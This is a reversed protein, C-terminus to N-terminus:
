VIACLQFPTLSQKKTCPIYDNGVYWSIEFCRRRLDDTLHDDVDQGEVSTQYHVRHSIYRNELRLAAFIPRFSITEVASFDLLDVTDKFADSFRQEDGIYFSDKPTVFAADHGDDAVTRDLLPLFRTDRLGGLLAHVKDTPDENALMSAIERLLSKVEDKNTAKSDCVHVLEELLMATDMIKAGLKDKFFGSMDPYHRSLITKGRLRVARIDKSMHTWDIKLELERYIDSVQTIEPSDRFGAYSLRELERLIDNHTADEIDLLKAFLDQALDNSAYEKALVVKGIKLLEKDQLTAVSVIGSYLALIHPKSQTSAQFSSSLHELADLHFRLTPKLCVDFIQLFSWDGTTVLDSDSDMQLYPLSEVLGFLHGANVTEETPLITQCLKRKEGNQCLVMANKLESLVEPSQMVQAKYEKWNAELTGVVKSPAKVIVEQFVPSLGKWKEDAETLCPYQRIGATNRLWSTWTEGDNRVHDKVSSALYYKSIFGFGHHDIKDELLQSASYPEPSHMYLRTSATFRSREDVGWLLPLKSKTSTGHWFLVAFHAVIHIVLKSDKKANKTLVAKVALAPQVHGIGLDQYFARREPLNYAAPHVLHLGIDPYLTPSLDHNDVRPFYSKVSGFRNLRDWRIAQDSSLPIIDLTYLQQKLKPVPCIHELLFDVLTTHWSDALDTSHIISSKSGSELDGRILDLMETENLTPLSLNKLIAVAHKDYHNSLYTKSPLLPEDQHLFMSPVVRLSAIPHLEDDDEAMLLRMDKLNSLISPRLTAWFDDLQNGPVYQMWSYRLVDDDECFIGIAKSFLDAVARRLQGNKLEDTVAERSAATDFDAQIIFPLKAMRKMPLYAFIHQGRPSISPLGSERQVPFALQVKTSQQVDSEEHDASNSLAVTCEGQYMKYLLYTSENRSDVSISREDADWEDYRALVRPLTSHGTREDLISIKAIQRLFLLSTDPVDAFANSLEELFEANIENLHLTIRTGVGLPLVVSPTWHPAIMGLGDDGKQYKFQFSWLGSQLTVRRSIAFVSKFGLGKAGITNNDGEKSSQATNCIALVDRVTFGNENSEIIVLQPRLTFKIWPVNDESTHRSYTADDANQILEYIFLKTFAALSKRAHDAQSKSKRQFEHSTKSLESLDEDTLIGHRFRIQDIINHAQDATQPEAFLANLDDSM